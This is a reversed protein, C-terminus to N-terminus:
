PDFDYTPGANPGVYPDGDDHLPVRVLQNLHMILSHMVSIADGLKEPHGNFTENLALLLKTYVRNFQIAEAQAKSGPAFHSMRPNPIMPWVGDTDFRIKPGTFNFTTESCEQFM